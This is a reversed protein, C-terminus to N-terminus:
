TRPRIGYARNLTTGSVTRSIETGIQEKQRVLQAKDVEDAALIEALLGQVDKLLGGVTARDKGPLGDLVQQWRGKYPHLEKDLPAVQELLRGRAALVTMLNEADGTSVYQSQQKCLGFIQTYLSKQGTLARVLTAALGMGALSPAGPSAFLNTM